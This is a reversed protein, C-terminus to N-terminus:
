LPTPCLDTGNIWNAISWFVARIVWYAVPLPASLSRAPTNPNQWRALTYSIKVERKGVARGSARHISEAPRSSSHMPRNEGVFREKPLQARIRCRTVRFCLRPGASPGFGSFGYNRLVGYKSLNLKGDPVVGHSIAALGTFVPNARGVWNRRDVVPTVM